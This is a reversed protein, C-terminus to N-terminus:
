GEYVEDQTIKAVVWGFDGTSIKTDCYGCIATAGIKNAPAGCNPCQKLSISNPNNKAATGRLFTWYESYLRPKKDNGGVVKGSTDTVFDLCGAFIRVTFSQYYHDLDIRALEVKSVSLNQLNPKLHQAKYNELWFGNAEFLRDSVLHRVSGWNMEEWAKYITEFTPVVVESKFSNEFESWNQLQNAQMFAQKKAELDPQFLTPFDTGVEEEYHALGEPTFEEKSLVKTKKVFWNMDGAKVETHCYGCTGANTFQAPAGCSPCSVERMKNPELSLKGKPRNFLWREVVIYRTQSQNAFTTTYNAEIDVVLGEIEAMEIVEKIYISGVVIESVRSKNQLSLMAAVEQPEFFPSINSFSAKGYHLHYNHFLSSAFDLFVSSSFYPDRTKLQAIGAEVEEYHYARIPADPKITQVIEREQKAVANDDNQIIYTVFMAIAYLVVVGFNLLILPILLGFFLSGLIFFVGIARVVTARKPKFMSLGSIGLIIGIILVGYFGADEDTTDDYDYSSTNGSYNSGASSSGSGYNSGSSGSGSSGSSSSGSSSGSSYSRSPSSYSSRGSSSSGSSSGSSSSSSSYSRSSSSSSRSSSSSSSRFSRGGGPRAETKEVWDFHFTLLFLLSGLFLFRLVFPTYFKLKM